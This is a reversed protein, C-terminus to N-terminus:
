PEELKFACGGSDTPGLPIVRRQTGVAELVGEILAAHTECVVEYAAGCAERFVCNEAVVVEDGLRYEGGLADLAALAQQGAAGATGIRRGAELGQRRAVQRGSPGEEALGVALLEALLRHHRPPHSAEAASGAYKYVRSPRGRRGGRDARVLLAADALRELHSFAVSRHIGQGTAVEDVTMERMPHRAFSGFIARRRSDAIAFIVSDM